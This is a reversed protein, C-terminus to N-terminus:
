ISADADANKEAQWKKAEWWGEEFQARLEPDDRDVYLELRAPLSSFPPEEWGGMESMNFGFDFAADLAKQREPTM